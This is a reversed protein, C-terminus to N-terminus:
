LNGDNAKGALARILRLLFDATKGSAARGAAIVDEHALGATGRGAARNSILSLGLVEMGLSRAAIVELVTSMGVLDAGVRELMDIEAPTEYSPGPLGAYVGEPIGPSLNKALTRLPLSYAGTMDCFRGPPSAGTLPNLGTLNIHDRILVLTGIDLDKRIGGAANTLILTRVGLAYLVFVSLVVDAPSFGEYVHLRGGMVAVRTNIKLNGPHGQVSPQPFGRIARWPISVGDIRDPFEGFGSGTVIGIVPRSPCFSAISRCAQSVRKQFLPDV